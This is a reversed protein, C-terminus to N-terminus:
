FTIILTKSPTLISVGPLFIRWQWKRMNMNKLLISQSRVCQRAGTLNTEVDRTAVLLICLLLIWWMRFISFFNCQIIPSAFLFCLRLLISFHLEGCLMFLQPLATPIKILSCTPRDCAWIDAVTRFIKRRWFTWVMEPAWSAEQEVSILNQMRPTVNVVWRRRTDLNHILPSISGKCAKM